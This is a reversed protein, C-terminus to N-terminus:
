ERYFHYGLSFSVGSESFSPQYADDADSQLRVATGLTLRRGIDANARVLFNRTSYPAGDSFGVWLEVPQVPRLGLGYTYQGGGSYLPVGEWVSASFYVTRLSGLRIHASPAISSDDFRYNQSLTDVVSPDLSSGAYSATEHVWGARIGIHGTESVQGDLEGGYDRYEDKFRFDADFTQTIPTGTCSDYGLSIVRQAHVSQGATGAGAGFRLSTTRPADDGDPAAVPVPEGSEDPLKVGVGMPALLLSCAVISRSRSGM